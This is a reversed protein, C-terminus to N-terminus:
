AKVKTETYERDGTYGPFVHVPIYSGDIGVEARKRSLRYNEATSYIKIFLFILMIDHPINHCARFMSRM